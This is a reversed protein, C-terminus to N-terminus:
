ALRLWSKPVEVIGKTGCRVRLKRGHESLSGPGVVTCIICAFLNQHERILFVKLGECQADDEPLRSFDPVPFRPIRSRDHWESAM